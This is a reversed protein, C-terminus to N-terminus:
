KKLTVSIRGNEVCIWMEVDRKRTKQTLSNYLYATGNYWETTTHINNHPKEVYFCNGVEVKQCTDHTEDLVENLLEPAKKALIKRREASARLAAIENKYNKKNKRVYKKYLEMDEKNYSKKCRAVFESFTEKGFKEKLKKNKQKNVLLVAGYEAFTTKNLTSSVIIYELKSAPIVPVNGSFCIGILVVSLIIFFAALGLKVKKSRVDVKGGLKENIKDLPLKNYVEDLKKIVVKSVTKANKVSEEAIIKAKEKAEEIKKDTM